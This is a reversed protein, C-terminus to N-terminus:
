DFLGQIGAPPARSEPLPFPERTEDKTKLHELIKKIVAPDEICAIVRMAGGCVQCTEIDINFVRKLRQAWTMSARREAPTPLEDSLRANNGKGRKAPTVLARHQSNPAFVGHFRTLNVRPKPVLAALRAIFDLPEFIVHTSGDRYPTKLQYRVNGNPTLWLRKESVAPRSIYRCLRELKKREDARAAVGAHLSFGAVKGVTDGFPDEPECAPLTQLTFVKRGAQPGVAIRYTISYGLLQNMSNDDAADGALYSNEADRELLGQRELFCGVRRAITHALQTLEQSTPAKVWRFRATGNPQEVYVGDLLLMHFHINLNLASGFRQILTVAGTHATRHTHGSKKILHTAIVRYVIGLVRGMIEPRSAFLFRLPFPFSLVWQRMPQEPLVEDVLLAASEAMRRAGCSPCFGRRKCSFAVLHEAHCSECRVRLFGYELRGCKLYDDFDRQVYAPLVRGREALHAAFAPYYEEVIRYLLTQEPRHRQYRGADEDRTATRAAAYPMIRM